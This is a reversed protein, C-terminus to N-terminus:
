VLAIGIISGRLFVPLFFDYALAEEGTTVIGGNSRGNAIPPMSGYVGNRM